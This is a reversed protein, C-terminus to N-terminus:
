DRIRKKNEVIQSCSTIVKRIDVPKNLIEFVSPYQECTSFNKELVNATTIITPIYINKKVLTEIFDWGNMKPMNIDTIIIDPLFGEEIKELGEVGNEVCVVNPYMITLFSELSKQITLEDELYLIKVNEEM